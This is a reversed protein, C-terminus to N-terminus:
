FSSRFRNVCAIAPSRGSWRSTNRSRATSHRETTSVAFASSTETLVTLVRIRRARRSNFSIRWLALLGVACGESSSSILVNSAFRLKSCLQSVYNQVLKVIELVTLLTQCAQWPRTRFILARDELRKIPLVAGRTGDKFFPNSVGLYPLNSEPRQKRSRQRYNFSEALQDSRNKRWAMGSLCWPEQFGFELPSLYANADTVQLSGRINSLV